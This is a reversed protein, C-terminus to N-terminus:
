TATIISWFANHPAGTDANHVILRNILRPIYINVPGGIAALANLNGTMANMPLRTQSVIASAYNSTQVYWDGQTTSDFELTCTAIGTYPQLTSVVSTAAPIPQGSSNGALIKYPTPYYGPPLTTGWVGIQVGTNAVSQGFMTWKQGTNPIIEQMTAGTDIHWETPPGLFATGPLSPTMVVRAPSAQPTVQVLLAPWQSADLGAFPTSLSATFTVVQTGAFGGIFLADGVSRNQGIQVSSPDLANETAIFEVQSSGTPTPGVYCATPQMSGDVQMTKTVRPPVVFDAVQAATAANLTVGGVSIYVSGDTQNQVTLGASTNGFNLSAITTTAGSGIPTWFYPYQRGGINPPNTSM